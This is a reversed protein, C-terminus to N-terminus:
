SFVILKAVSRRHQFPALYMGPVEPMWSEKYKCFFEGKPPFMDPQDISGYTIYRFKDM